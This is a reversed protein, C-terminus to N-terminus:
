EMVGFLSHNVSSIMIPCHESQIVEVEEKANEPSVDFSLKCFRCVFRM